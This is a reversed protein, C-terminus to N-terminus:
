RPIGKLGEDDARVVLEGVGSADGDALRGAFRVIGEEHITPPTQPLPMEHMRDPMANERLLAPPLPETNGALPDRIVEDVRDLGATQHFEALTVALRVDQQDVIDLEEGALLARLLLEEVGEVREEIPM